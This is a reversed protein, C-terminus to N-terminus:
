RDSRAPAGLLSCGYVNTSCVPQRGDLLFAEIAERGANDGAHGRSATIGGRFALAGARDYVFADGSTVSGFRSAEVGGRDAVCTVGPIRAASRWLDTEAWGFPQDAPAFFVVLAEVRLAESRPGTRAMLKDLEDITARTCPCRPHAFLVLTAREDSRVLRSGTPWVVAPANTAGPTAQHRLLAGLGWATGAVWALTAVAIIPTTRRM